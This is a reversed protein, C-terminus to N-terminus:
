EAALSRATDNAAYLCCSALGNHNTGLNVYNPTPCNIISRSFLDYWNWVHELRDSKEDEALAMAMRIFVFQPSEYRIGKKVNSLGYKRNLQKIAHYPMKMDRSHDIMEEILRYEEDSYNLQRMLTLELMRRHQEKVTPPIDSDYMEKRIVANYLRGAMLAYPWSKKRVCQTILRDQLDQSAIEEGIDKVAKLVIGDWHIEGPINSAAWQAWKNLKEPNFAEREGNRKIITRLM